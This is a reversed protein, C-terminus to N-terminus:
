LDQAAISAQKMTKICTSFTRLSIKCNSSYVPDEDSLLLALTEQTYPSPQNVPKIYHDMINDFFSCELLAHFSADIRNLVCSFIRDSYLRKLFREQLVMTPM